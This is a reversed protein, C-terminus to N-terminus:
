VKNQSYITVIEKRLDYYDQMTFTNNLLKSEYERRKKLGKIVIIKNKVIVKNWQKFKIIAKKIENNSLQKSFGSNKIKDLDGTNYLLSVIASKQLYSLKPYEKNVQNFLKSVIKQFIIDADHINKVSKVNTFGWGITTKNASCRYSKNRFGEHKKITWCAIEYQQTSTFLEKNNLETNTNTNSITEQTKSCSVFLLLILLYKM